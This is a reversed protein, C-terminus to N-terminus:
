LEGKFAKDLISPMLTRGVFPCLEEGTASQLTIGNHSERLRNMHTKSNVSETPSHLYWGVGKLQPRQASGPSTDIMPKHTAAESFRRPM